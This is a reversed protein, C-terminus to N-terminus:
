HNLAVVIHIRALVVVVKGCDLKAAVEEVVLGRSSGDAAEPRIEAAAEALVLLTAAELAARSHGPIGCHISCCDPLSPSNYPSPNTM